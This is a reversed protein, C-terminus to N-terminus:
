TMDGLVEKFAGSPVYGKGTAEEVQSGLVSRLM